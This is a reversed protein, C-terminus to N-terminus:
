LPLGRAIRPLRGALGMASRAIRHKLPPCLTAALFGLPRVAALPPRESEFVRVLSDTFRVVRQQDQARWVRYKELLTEAGLDTNSRRADALLQALTAIDRLGLNFGQGGIPHLAHAANGILLSRARSQAQAQVLKLPYGRRASLSHLTGLRSGFQQQLQALFEEDPLSLAHQAAATRQMWVLGMRTPSSPLLAIAGSATFREYACRAHDREAALTTVIATQHYDHENIGIGLLTRVTSDTGDAGVLLQARIVQENNNQTIRAAIHDSQTEIATLRAPCLWTVTPLADLAAFLTGGLVRANVVYGLADVGEESRDLRTAGFRGRESIHIRHIPAAVQALAPWVGLGAFIRSSGYALTISREDYGTQRTTPRPLAEILAVRLGQQAAALALSAGALGAGSIIIDFDVTAVSM